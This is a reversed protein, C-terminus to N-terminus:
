IAENLGKNVLVKVDVRRNIDRGEADTNTAAAHTAGYGAPTLIRRMPVNASNRLYQAVATAREDSLKQNQVKTGTSSAYGAIEIMYNQTSMADSALKDLAKKDDASLIAQDSEFFLAAEVVTTYDGLDSVRKNVLSIAEADMVAGTGAAAALQGAQNATGQAKNASTQAQGAAAVGQNATTQANGAAAKNAEIQQEEAVEVAFTDPNFTIKGADLQGKSNGVGEATITLGPLMATVDQEAKRLRFSKERDIKTDDTINVIASTSEKKVKITVLDGNRSVISGTVKAKKGAEFKKAPTAAHVFSTLSLLLAPLYLRRLTKITILRM